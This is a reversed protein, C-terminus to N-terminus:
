YEIDEDEAMGPNILTIDYESDDTQRSIHTDQLLYYIARIQPGFVIEDQNKLDHYPMKRGNVIMGNASPKGKADGDVIRYYYTNLSHERPMRVLTAHRRSVFQSMLRIHCERDRGISYITQELPIEKRGQDDEIILLHSQNNETVM